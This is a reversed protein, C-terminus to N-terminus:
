RDYKRRPNSTRRVSDSGFSAPSSRSVQRVAELVAECNRLAEYNFICLYRCRPSALTATLAQRWPDTQQHGEYLWEAAAWYPANSRKLANQVGIDNGPDDAHRYFSWGPCSFQNLGSQYLLENEKWGGTHTFLKERPVGLEWAIQCLDELHLRVVEAMDAETIDGHTRIGAAKVAAYGIQVMGRAPVEDCVLLNTPDSIPPQDLLRNGNPYYWANVGISSEHGVKLGIFLYRQNAPLAKWWHMVIPVLVRMEEHCAARYAPSMLNPPPTVRLQNGWNRWAIKIAEESSWGTWEVDSRNAPSYGRENPEWWNWLDPRDQWWNEGDLQVVVPTGTTQAASLFSKLDRVVEERPQRLYSFIRSVGVRIQADPSNAFRRRVEGIFKPSSTDQALNFLIFQSPEARVPISTLLWFCSLLLSVHLRWVAADKMRPMKAPMFETM